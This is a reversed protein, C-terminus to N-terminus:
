NNSSPLMQCNSLECDGDKAPIWHRTAIYGPSCEASDTVYRDYLTGSAATGPHTLLVARQQSVINHLDACTHAVSSVRAIPSAPSALATLPSLVGIALLIPLISRM